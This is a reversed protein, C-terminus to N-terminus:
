AAPAGRDKPLDSAVWRGALAFLLSALIFFCSGVTLSWRLGQASAIQCLAASNASCEAASIGYQAMAMGRFVDSLLGIAPPGLGYGLLSSASIIIASALARMHPPALDQGLSFMAPMYFHQGLSATFFLTIAIWMVPVQFGIAFLSGCWLMGAAPLWIRIHPFRQRWRDMIPGSSLTVLIGVGGFVLGMLTSATALPLGHARMLFSVMYQHNSFSGIGAVAGALAVAVFSRKALLTRLAPLLPETIRGHVRAPERTTARIVVALLVGAVGCVIFATRWGHTQVLWGGGLAAILAGVPGAAVFVAMATTRREAPFADSILSHAPPTCGAEGISVAARGILMQMFNAAIGCFATMASWAAFALSIITVRNSRDALRAIPFSALTYLLAFAPGGLLGLQFDTLLLDAKIAEQAVAFLLRDVYNMTNLLFLTLLTWLLAPRSARLPLGIIGGDASARELPAHM